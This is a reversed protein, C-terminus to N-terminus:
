VASSFKSGCVHLRLAKTRLSLAAGDQRQHISAVEWRALSNGPEYKAFMCVSGVGM